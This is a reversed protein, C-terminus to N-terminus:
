QWHLGTYYSLFRLVDTREAVLADHSRGYGHGSASDVRLLAVAEPPSVAQLAAAFKLSHAPVVRDDHDSTMVMIPPYGADARLNHLPSYARLTAFQEADGRPDGYDSIWAAGITWLHFRLLDLVGVEPVVAAFLEPRQTVVAGALLGGNSRGSLALHERDTWGEFILHEACAAADDFVNQKNALRGADHWDRGYEAGGRLCAVAVVGGASAFAFRSADFTPTMAVRFGGYGYLWAPHPGGTATIDPRHVLFLPVRTGDKSAVFTQETVLDTDLPTAFATSLEDTDVRYALVAPPATFTAWDLHLVPEEAGAELDAISGLGPLEPTALQTGDLDHVTLRAAADHLWQVVLRGGAHRAAELQDAREAVLERVAGDATVAVLRGLPAEADTLMVLEDGLSGVLQWSADAVAILPRLGLGASLDALWVRARHETGKTAHVVLWRGDDTVQPWFTVDPEDPLAFVLEDTGAGLRHLMLRMARNSEVLSDGAPPDYAGYVFGSGDPLWSPWTFKSWRVEDPRDMGTSTERVRWTRWDSGAESYSYAVLAGDPSPRYAALSVSADGLANPDILVRPDDGFPEDEVLLVDQQQVGDNHTRFWYRGHHRPLGSHPRRVARDLLARIPAPDPLGDLHERTVAAQAALWDAVEADDSDELWRYPDPVTTGFYDDVVDVTRTIM